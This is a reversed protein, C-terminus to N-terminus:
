RTSFLYPAIDSRLIVCFNCSATKLRYVPATASLRSAFSPRFRANAHAEFAREVSERNNWEAIIVNQHPLQGSGVGIPEGAAASIQEITPRYSVLVSDDWGHYHGEFKIFKQRGTAARALRLAVQVIETGSNAFCVLDACPIIRKLARRSRISSM